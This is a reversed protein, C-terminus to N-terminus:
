VFFIFYYKIIKNVMNSASNNVSFLSKFWKGVDLQKHKRLLGGYLVEGAGSTTIESAQEGNLSVSAAGSVHGTVINMSCTSTRVEAAGSAYITGTGSVVGNIDLESAGSVDVNLQSIIEINVQAESAGSLKLSLKDTKIINSTSLTATGSLTISTLPKILRLYATIKPYYSVNPKLDMRLFPTTTIVICCDHVWQETEIELTSISSTSDIFTVIFHIIHSGKLSTIDNTLDYSLRRITKDALTITTTTSLLLLLTFNIIM